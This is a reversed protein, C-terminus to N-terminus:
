NSSKLVLQENRAGYFVLYGQDTIFDNFGQGTEAGEDVVDFVTVGDVKMTLRVGYAVDVAGLQIDHEMGEVIIGDNDIVPIVFRNTGAHFNQLEIANEKIIIMYSAYTTWGNAQNDAARLGFGQWLTGDGFSFTGKFRWTQYNPLKANYAAIVSGSSGPSFTLQDQVFAATASPSYIWNGPQNLLTGLDVEENVVSGRLTAMASELDVVAADIETQTADPDDVLLEAAAITDLLDSKAQHEYQGPATGAVAQNAADTAAQIVLLLEDFVVTESEATTFTFVEASVRSDPYLISGGIATVKWYYSTTGYALDSVQISTHKTTGEYVVNAFGADTAVEVLYETAGLAPVWSFSAGSAEVDTAGDQPSALTFASVKPAEPRNANLVLGVQDYDIPVFGDFDYQNADFSSDLKFIDNTADVFGPDTTMSVNHEFTGSPLAPEQIILDGSQYILTNTIQNYKPLRPEDQLIDSINPYKSMWLPSDVPMQAYRAELEDTNSIAYAVLRISDTSNAIINSDMVFNRGGHINIPTDINYFINNTIIGGSLMDDFYIAFVYHLGMEENARMDHFINNRITIGRQTWDRGAYIAGADGTEKVLDYLENYEILQDNGNVGIGEHPGDHIINHSIRNGVGDLLVGPTYTKVSRSFRTIYNNDIYNHGYTLTPRDGGTLNIGGRGIDYVENDVIGTHSANRVNVAQSGLNRFINNEVVNHDADNMTIGDGTSSEFIIDKISMYDTNDMAIMAGTFLSLQMKNNNLEVSPYYYLIGTDRDLYWEGPQDIEELLNFAYYHQGKKIGYATNTSTTFTKAVPDLGTIELSDDHWENGWFGHMWIDDAETWREPAQGEYKFVTDSLVDGTKVYGTNPWRALTQPVDDVIFGTTDAGERLFVNARRVSGYDTIGLAQLDLQLVESQVEEYLRDKIALDTIPAFQNAPLNVAGTFRVEEGPAARYTIPAQLSGSDDSSLQLSSTFPYEGGAIYVTMGGEPVGDGAKMARLADRAGELTRLPSGATGLNADDGALDVYLGFSIALKEILEADTVPDLLNAEDSIVHFGSMSIVHKGLGGALANLPVFPREAELQAPADAQLPVGNVTYAASDLTFTVTQGGQAFELVDGNRTYAVGLSIAVYDAPALLEGNVLVPALTELEEDILGRSGAAFGYSSGAALAVADGLKTKLGTLPDVKVEGPPQPEEEDPDVFKQYFAQYSATNYEELLFNDFYYEGVGQSTNGLWFKLYEISAHNATKFGSTVSSIEGQENKLYISQSMNELDILIGMDYTIGEEVQMSLSRNAGGDVQSTLTGNSTLQIHTTGPGGSTGLGPFMNDFGSLAEATFQFQFLAKDGTFPEDLTRQVVVTGEPASTVIHLRGQQVEFVDSPTQANNTNNSFSWGSSGPPTTGDGYADFSEEMLVFDGTVTVMAQAKLTTDTVVGEVEFTGPAAFSAPDITAWQVPATGTTADDYTVSVVTPLVPAVGVSTTVEVPEVSVIASEPEAPNIFKADFQQLAIADAELLSINDFYYEGVGHSSSGLSFGIYNIEKAYNRFGSTISDIMEDSHRLVYIDQTQNALDVIMGFDYTEGEELPMDFLVDGGGGVHSKLVGNNNVSLHTTANNEGRFLGPFYYDSGTASEITVTYQFIAKDGTFPGPLDRQLVSAGSPATTLVKLRGDVVEITDGATLFSWGSAPPPVTGNAYSEFDDHIAPLGGEGYAQQPPYLMSGILAVILLLSLVRSKM